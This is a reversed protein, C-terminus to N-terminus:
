ALITVSSTCNRKSRPALFVGGRRDGFFDRIIWEEPGLSNRSSGYRAQLAALEPTLRESTFIWAALIAFAVVLVVEVARGGRRRKLPASTSVLTNWFLPAAQDVVAVDLAKTSCWDNM